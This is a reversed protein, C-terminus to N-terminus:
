KEGKNRRSVYIFGFSILFAVSLFGGFFFNKEASEQGESEVESSAHESTNEEQSHESRRRNKNKWQKEAKEVHLVKGEMKTVTYTSRVKYAPNSDPLQRISQICEQSKAAYVNEIEQPNVVYGSKSAVDNQVAYIHPCARYISGINEGDRVKQLSRNGVISRPHVYFAYDPFSKLGKIVIEHQVGHYGPALIDGQARGPLVWCLGVFLLTVWGVGLPKKFNGMVELGKVLSSSQVSRKSTTYGSKKM